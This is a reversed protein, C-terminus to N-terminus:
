GHRDEAIVILSHRLAVLTDLHPTLRAAPYPNRGLEADRFLLYLGRAAEEAMIVLRLGKPSIVLEKVAPNAFLHAQAAVLSLPPLGSADDCRLTCHGPFAAPLAVTVPMDGFRSFIDNQGPNSMLHMEGKVPITETLTILLWLVPLKRYTLTDPVAQLDFTM